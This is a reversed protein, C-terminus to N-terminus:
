RGFGTGKPGEVKVYVEVLVEGGPGAWLKGKVFPLDSGAVPKELDFGAKSQGVVVVRIDKVKWGNRLRLGAYAPHNSKTGLAGPCRLSFLVGGSRAVGTTARCGAAADAVEPDPLTAGAARAEDWAIEREEAAAPAAAALGAALVLRAVAFRRTM